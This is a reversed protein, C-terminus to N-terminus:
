VGPILDLLYVIIERLMVIIKTSEEPTLEDLKDENKTIQDVLTRVSDFFPKESGRAPISSTATTSLRDKIRDGVRTGSSGGSSETEEVACVTSGGDSIIWSYTTTLIDRAVQATNCYQADTSFSVNSQVPIAAWGILLISYNAGSLALGSLMNQMSTVSSVDWASLDQNFATAYEFMSEMNTVNSVNWTNLPQNFSAALRFMERMNTVNSVDWSSINQNFKDAGAFMRSMNTVNSLDPVDSAKGEVNVAGDFMAQTSAWQNNGWQEISILKERDNVFGGYSFRFSPHTGLIDVRYTGAVPFTITELNCNSDMTSSGNNSDNGVEVWYITGNCSEGDNGTGIHFSIQNSLTTGTNDSQWVTSFSGPSIPAALASSAFFVFFGLTLGFLLLWKNRIGSLNLTRLSNM